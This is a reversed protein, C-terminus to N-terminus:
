ESDCDTSCESCLDEELTRRRDEETWRDTMEQETGEMRAIESSRHPAAQSSTARATQKTRAQYEVKPVKLTNSDSRVFDEGKNKLSSSAEPVRSSRRDLESQASFVVNASVQSGQGLSMSGMQTVLDEIQATPQASVIANATRTVDQQTAQQSARLLQKVQQLEQKLSKSAQEVFKAQQEILERQGEFIMEQHMASEKAVRASLEYSRVSEKTLSLTGKLTAIEFQLLRQKEFTPEDDEDEDSAYMEDEDESPDYDEDESECLTPGDSESQLDSVPSPSRPFLKPDDQLHADLEQAAVDFSANDVSM